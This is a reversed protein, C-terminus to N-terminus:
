SRLLKWIMKQHGRQHGLLDPSESSKLSKKSSRKSKDQKEVESLRNHVKCTFSFVKQDIDEFWLEDTYQDGISETEEYTEVLIKFMDNIQELEERATIGNQFSYMLDGVENSKRIVISVLNSRRRKLLDMKGNKTM